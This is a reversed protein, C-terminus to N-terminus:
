WFRVADPGARAVRANASFADASYGHNLIDSVSALFIRERLSRRALLLRPLPAFSHSLIEVSTFKPESACAITGLRM